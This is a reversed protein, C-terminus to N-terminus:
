PNNIVTQNQKPGYNFTRNGGGGFMRFNSLASTAGQAAQGLREANTAGLRQAFENANAEVNASRASASTLETQRKILGERADEVKKQAQRLPINERESLSKAAMYDQEHLGVNYQVSNVNRQSQKLDTDMNTNNVNAEMQSLELGVKAQALASAVSDKAVNQMPHAAAGQGGSTSPTSGSASPGSAQQSVASNAGMGGTGSLIPNLGAARLDAVERQHATNTLNTQWDRSLRAESANFNRAKDAEMMNYDQTYQNMKESWERQVLNQYAQWKRQKSAEKANASNSVLGGLVNSGAAIAIGAPGNLFSGIGSAASGAASGLGGLTLSELAM